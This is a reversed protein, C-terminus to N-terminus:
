NLYRIIVIGSGGAAGSVLTQGAGGGGGSGTNVTGSTAALNSKGGTGGGGTGGSGPTGTTETGGGGGGGYTVSSGSISSTFGIGGNGGALGNGGAGGAGGGGSGTGTIAGAECNGGSYGFGSSSTGGIAAALDRSGGGSGGSAGNANASSGGGGGGTSTIANFFSNTGSSGKAAFTTSGAGGAGIIVGYYGSAISASGNRADASGGGGARDCGGGAGGGLILYEIALNGGLVQFTNSSTFTHITYGGSNTVTGGIGYPKVPYKVILTGSGGNGGTRTQGGGGGGGGLNTTGATGNASNGAGNGGGGTGGTGFGGPVDYIGGGGGGSYAVSVGSINSSAGAGGNGAAVSSTASTGAASAGGGGGAPYPSATFNGNGGGNNGQSPSTSPTNGAGGFMQASSYAGGGGGSGGSGGTTDGTNGTRAGLGGGTAIYGNFSTDSGKTAATGSTNGTGATGGGGITVPYSGQSIPISTFPRFGGGGGGGSAGGGGGGVILFDAYIDGNVVNLTDSGNFTHIKFGGVNTITGGTAYSFNGKEVNFLQAINDATLATNYLLVNAISGAFFTNATWNAKAIEMGLSNLGSSGTTTSNVRVGDIYFVLSTTSRTVCVFHWNGDNISVGTDFSLGAGLEDYWALRGSNVGLLADQTAGNGQITGVIVPMDYYNGFTSSLTTKMWVCWSFSTAANLPSGVSVYQNTGNFTFFGGNITSYTPSNQLTGNFGSGSIDSWTGGTGSYSYNSSADYNVVLGTTFIQPSNWKSLLYNQINVMETGSLAGRYVLIEQIKAKAAEMGLTNAGVRYTVNAGLSQSNAVANNTKVGNIYMDVSGSTRVIGCVYGTNITAAYPSSSGAVTGNIYVGFPAVYAVSGYGYMIELNGAPYNAFIGGYDTAGASTTTRYCLFMTFDTNGAAILSSSALDLWQNGSFLLGSRSGQSNCFLSPKNTGSTQTFHNNNGSLDRWRGIPDGFATAPITGASDTFLTSPNNADLWLVLSPQTTPKNAVLTLGTFAM